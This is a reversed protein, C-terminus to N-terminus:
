NTTFTTGEKGDQLQIGSAALEDRIKDSLEFNKEKKANNRAAILKEIKEKEEVSIGFQFYTYADKAGVGLISDIFEISAIIEKKLNKNKPEFNKKFCLNYFNLENQKLTM